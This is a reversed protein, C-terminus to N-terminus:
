DLIRRRFRLVGVSLLLWWLPLGAATCGQAGPEFGNDIAHQLFDFECGNTPDGDVDFFGTQCSLLKCAGSDCTGYGNDPACPSDCAGCHEMSFSIDTCVGDCTVCEACGYGQDAGEFVCLEGNAACDRSRLGNRGCWELLTGDCSGYFDIDGCEEPLCSWGRTNGWWGCSRNTAQCDEVRKFGDVCQVLIDEECARPTDEDCPEFVPPLGGSLTEDVWDAMKDVRTLHDVDVCTSDGWQETGVVVPAVGEEPQWVIPGGSDGYCIGQEGHGDVTVTEGDFRIIQVSAFFRGTDDSYTNGYGSADVWREVWGELPERNMAIPVLDPVLESADLGLILIAFDVTPHEIIQAVPILALPERPDVGLGYFIRFAQEGETCHSATIVVRNSILTGSCFEVGSDGALYGIAHIQGQSLFTNQPDRTGNVIPFEAECWLGAEDVDFNGSPTCSFCLVLSCLVAIRYMLALKTQNYSESL